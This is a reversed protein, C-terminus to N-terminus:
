TAPETDLRTRAADLAARVAQKDLPIGGGQAFEPQGGGRGGFEALTTNLLKGMDGPANQHRAFYFMATPGAIGLLAIVNPTEVLTAALLKIDSPNRNEYAAVIVTLDPHPQPQSLLQAAEFSIVQKTLAKLSSQASKLDDRLRRVAEPIENLRRNLSAMLLNGVNAKERYDRLARSGCRFEVRTKDGRRETKVVKIIGIEGTRAVHTGGCATVDFEEIEIVRLGNTLLQKPLRRARINEHDDPERLYAKVPRNEWLIQNALHEVSDMQEQSLAVVDLDMTVSDPSLHFSVTNAQAVQVFAQTLIHQGTHHQMHDFRRMWNVRGVVTDDPLPTNLIHIVAGDDERPIAEVVQAQNLTGTDSPQGGGTPYFYTRDLIVGPQTNVMIHEIITASFQTTYSDDYYLRETM